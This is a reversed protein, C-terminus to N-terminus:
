DNVYESGCLSQFDWWKLDLRVNLVENAPGKKVDVKEINGHTSAVSRRENNEAKTSEERFDRVAAVSKESRGETHEPQTADESLDVLEINSEKKESDVEDVKAKIQQINAKM